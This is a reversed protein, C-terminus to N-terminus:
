LPFQRSYLVKYRSWKYDVRGGSITAVKEKINKPGFVESDSKLERKKKHKMELGDAYGVTEAKFICRFNSCM